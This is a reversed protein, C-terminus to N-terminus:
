WGGRGVAAAAAIFDRASRPLPRGSDWIMGVDRYADADALPKVSVGSPYSSGDIPVLSIGLGAAVLSAATTLNPAQLAVRPRFQAAACLEDLLRRMGFGPHMTVFPEDALDVMSVAAGRAFRHGDPVAVGLRQRFLSRWALTREVPRPSVVGIDVGGSRVRDAISEAAGKELTFTVRPSSEKFRAILRPVVTSGFSSLYALRIEGVAPDALDAIARRASDLELQARRAHEYFIRGYTNLSLRRGHRDFLAVGLRQELRALMRTLTPQAVHLQEAAATVHQLEALTIFWEYDGVAM